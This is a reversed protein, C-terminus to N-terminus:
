AMEDKNGTERSSAPRLCADMVVVIDGTAQRLGDVVASALGKKGKRVIVEVPYKQLLATVAEATGDSSDDDVFLIRYDHNSLAHHIREVLPAINDRENYTPIILSITKNM